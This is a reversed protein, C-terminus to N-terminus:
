TFYPLSATNKRRRCESNRPLYILNDSSSKVYLAHSLSRLKACFFEFLFNLQSPSTAVSSVFLLWDARAGQDTREYDGKYDDMM